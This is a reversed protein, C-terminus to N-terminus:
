IWKVANTVTYNVCKNIVANWFSDNWRDNNYGATYMPSKEQEDSIERHYSGENMPYIPSVKFNHFYMTMARFQVTLYADFVPLLITKYYVPGEENSNSLQSAEKATVFVQMKKGNM